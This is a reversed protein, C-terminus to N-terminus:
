PRMQLYNVAKNSFRKFIGADPEPIEVINRQPGSLLPNKYDPWYPKLMVQENDFYKNKYFPYMSSDVQIGKKVLLQLTKSDVGWRGTRFSNPIINFKQHLIEVLADLKEEGQSIPLNVM